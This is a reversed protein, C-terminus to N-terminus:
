LNINHLKCNPRGCNQGKRPGSKLVSQCQNDIPQIVKIKEKLEDKTM